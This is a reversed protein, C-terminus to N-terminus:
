GLCLGCVWLTGGYWEGCPGECRLAHSRLLLWSEEAVWLKGSVSRDQLPMHSRTRDISLWSHQTM